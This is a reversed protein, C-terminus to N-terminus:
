GEHIVQEDSAERVYGNEIDRLQRELGADLPDAGRL